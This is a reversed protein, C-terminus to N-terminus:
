PWGYGYNTALDTAFQKVDSLTPNQFDRFWIEWAKNNEYSWKQHTGGDVWAGWQPDNVDIGLNSFESTFQQPLTHHAQPSLSPGMGGRASVVGGSLRRPAFHVQSYM